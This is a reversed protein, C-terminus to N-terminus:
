VCVGEMEVNYLEYIDHECRKVCMMSMGTDKQTYRHGEIQQSSLSPWITQIALSNTKTHTRNLFLTENARNKERQARIFEYKQANLADLLLLAADSRTRNVDWRITLDKTTRGGPM